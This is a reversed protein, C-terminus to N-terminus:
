CLIVTKAEYLVPHYQHHNIHHHHRHHHLMKSVHPLCPRRPDYFSLSPHLFPYCLPTPSGLLCMLLCLLIALSFSGLGAIASPNYSLSLWCGSEFFDNIISLKLCVCFYISSYLSSGRVMRVEVIFECGIKDGRFHGGGM